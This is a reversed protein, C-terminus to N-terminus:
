HQHPTLSASTTPHGHVMLSLALPRACVCQGLSSISVAPSSPPLNTLGEPDHFIHYNDSLSLEQEDPEVKIIILSSRVDEELTHQNEWTESISPPECSPSSVNKSRQLVHQDEGGHVFSSNEEPRGPETKIVVPLGNQGEQGGDGEGQYQKREM